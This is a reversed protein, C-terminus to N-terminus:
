THPLGSHACSSEEEEEAWREKAEGGWRGGGAGAGVGSLSGGRGGGGGGRVGSLPEMLSETWLTLLEVAQPREVSCSAKPREM